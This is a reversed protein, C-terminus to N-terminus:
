FKLSHTPCAKFNQDGSCHAPLDPGCVYLGGAVAGMWRASLRAGIRRGLRVIGWTTVMGMLLQALRVPLYGSEVGAFKSVAVLFVPYGPPQYFGERFPDAGRMLGAAQSWYTQADVLLHDAYDTRELSFLGILRLLLAGGLVAWEVGRWRRSPRKGGPTEQKDAKRRGM